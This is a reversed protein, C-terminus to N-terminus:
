FSFRAAEKPSVGMFMSISITSGSRSIGPIIALAQFLGIILSFYFSISKHQNKFGRSLILIFGTICLAFGVLHVNSFFLLLYEKFFLGVFAAPITAIVICIIFSQNKKTNLKLIISKIDSYFVFFISLLTGFHFLVELTNGPSTIGLIYQAIVLHGSSSIPLFETIGQIIGLIIIEFIQMISGM